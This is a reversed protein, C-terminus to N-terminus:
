INCQKHYHSALWNYLCRLNLSFKGFFLLVLLLERKRATPVIQKPVYVKALFKKTCQDIKSVTLLEVDFATM